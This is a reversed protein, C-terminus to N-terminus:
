FRVPAGLQRIRGRIGSLGVLRAVEADLYLKEVSYKARWGGPVDVAKHWFPHICPRVTIPHLWHRHGLVPTEGSKELVFANGIQLGRAVIINIIKGQHNSESQHAESDTALMVSSCKIPPDFVDAAMLLMYLFCLTREPL